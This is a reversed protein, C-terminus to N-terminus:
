ISETTETSSMTAWSVKTRKGNKNSKLFVKVYYESSQEGDLAKFPFQGIAGSYSPYPSYLTYGSKPDQIEFPHPERTDLINRESLDFEAKPVVMGATFPVLLSLTALATTAFIMNTPQHLCLTQFKNVLLLLILLQSCKTSHLSHLSHLLPFSSTIVGAKITLSVTRYSWTWICRWVLNPSSACGFTRCRIKAHFVFDYHHVAYVPSRVASFVM